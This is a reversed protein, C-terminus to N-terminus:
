AKNHDCSVLVLKINTLSEKFLPGTKQKKIFPNMERIYMYENYHTIILSLNLFQPAYNHFNSNCTIRTDAAASDYRCLETNLHRFAAVFHMKDRGTHRKAQSMIIIIYVRM